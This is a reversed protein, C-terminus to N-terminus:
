LSSRAPGPSGVRRSLSSAFISPAPALTICRMDEPREHGGSGVSRAWAERCRVQAKLKM